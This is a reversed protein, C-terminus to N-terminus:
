TRVSSATRSRKEARKSWPYPPLLWVACIAILVGDVVNRHLVYFVDFHRGPHLHHLLAGVGLLAGATAAGFLGLEVSAVFLGLLLGVRPIPAEVATASASDAGDLNPSVHAQESAVEIADSTV